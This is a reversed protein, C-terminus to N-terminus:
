QLRGTSPAPTARQAPLVEDVLALALFRACPAGHASELIKLGALLAVSAAPDPQHGVLPLVAEAIRTALAAMEDVARQRNYLQAEDM